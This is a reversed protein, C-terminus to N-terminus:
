VDVTSSPGWAWAFLTHDQAFTPSIVLERVYHYPAGGLDLGNDAITWTQGGDHSVVIGISTVGNALYLFGPSEKVGGLAPYLAYPSTGITAYVTQDHAFDPSPVVNQIAQHTTSDGSAPLAAEAWTLGADTTRYFRDDLALFAVGDDEFNPSYVFIARAY